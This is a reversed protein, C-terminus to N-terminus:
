PLAFGRGLDATVPLTTADVIQRCHYLMAESSVEHDRLGQSYAFGASTTALAEFGAHQLIKASGIDWPNPIVFTTGRQHLQRFAEFKCM